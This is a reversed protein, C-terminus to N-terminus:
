SLVEAIPRNSPKGRKPKAPVKGAAKAGQPQRAKVLQAVLDRVEDDGAGAIRAALVADVEASVWAVARPGIRVSPPFLGNVIAEYLSSCPLGTREEVLPRRELHFKHVM